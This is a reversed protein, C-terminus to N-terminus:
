VRGNRFIRLPYVSRRVAFLRFFMMWPNTSISTVMAWWRQQPLALCSTLVQGKSGEEDMGDGPRNILVADHV